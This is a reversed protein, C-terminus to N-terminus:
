ERYGYLWRATKRLREIGAQQAATVPRGQKLCLAAEWALFGGQEVASIFTTVAEELDWPWDLNFGGLFDRTPAKPMVNWDLAPPREPMPRSDNRKRETM